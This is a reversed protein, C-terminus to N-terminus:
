TFYKVYYPHLHYCPQKSFCDMAVVSDCGGQTAPPHDRGDLTMLIKDM